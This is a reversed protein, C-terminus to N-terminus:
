SRVNRERVGRAIAKDMDALSNEKGTYGVSGIVKQLTAPKCHKLPLLLVGDGVAAVAFETGPPWDHANRISRPLTVQGKSSLNTTEMAFGIGATLRFHSSRLDM